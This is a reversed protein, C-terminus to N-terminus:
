SGCSNAVWRAWSHPCSPQIEGPDSPGPLSPTSTAREARRCRGQGALNADETRRCCITWIKMQSASSITRQWGMSKWCSVCTLQM